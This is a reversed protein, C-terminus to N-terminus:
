DKRHSWGSLSLNIKVIIYDPSVINAYTSSVTVMDEAKMVILSDKRNEM